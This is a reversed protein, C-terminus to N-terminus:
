REPELLATNLLLKEIHPPVIRLRRRRTEPTDEYYLVEGGGRPVNKYIYAVLRDGDMWSGHRMWRGTNGVVPTGVFEYKVSHNDLTPQYKVEETADTPSPGYKEVLKGLGTAEQAPQRLRDWLMMAFNAVDVCENMADASGEYQVAVKMEELEIELKRILAEVPLLKWDSKHDNKRLKKECQSAFEILPLRLDLKPWGKQTGCWKCRLTLTVERQEVPPEIKVWEHDCKTENPQPM